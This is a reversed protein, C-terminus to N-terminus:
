REMSVKDFSVPYPLEQSRQPAVRSGNRLVVDKLTFHSPRRFPKADSYEDDSNVRSEGAEECETASEDEVVVFASKGGLEGPLDKAKSRRPTVPRAWQLARNRLSPSSGEAELADTM